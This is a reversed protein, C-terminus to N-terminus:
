ESALEMKKLPNATNEAYRQRQQIIDLCTYISQRFSDPDALNKGAIDFATGHDPSTRVIPLGATYNIGHGSALSKFPILGRTTTCRLSAM